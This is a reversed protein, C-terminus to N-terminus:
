SVERADPLDRSRERSRRSAARVAAVLLEVPGDKSLYDAAGAERM